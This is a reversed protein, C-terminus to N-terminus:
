EAASAAPRQHTAMVKAVADEVVTGKYFDPDMQAHMEATNTFVFDKFNDENITGKEVM